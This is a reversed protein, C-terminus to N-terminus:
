YIKCAQGFNQKIEVTYPKNSRLSLKRLAKLWYVSNGEKVFLKPMYGKIENYTGRGGQPQTHAGMGTSGRGASKRSFCCRPFHSEVNKVYMGKLDRVSARSTDKHVEPM